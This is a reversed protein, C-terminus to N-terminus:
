LDEPPNPLRLLLDLEPGISGSIVTDESLIRTTVLPVLEVRSTISVDGKRPGLLLELPIEKLLSELLDPSPPYTNKTSTCYLKRNSVPCTLSHETISQNVSRSVSQIYRYAIYYGLM